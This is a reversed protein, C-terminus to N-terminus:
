LTLIGPFIKIALYVVIAGAAGSVLATSLGPKGGKSLFMSVLSSSIAFILACVLYSLAFGKFPNPTM